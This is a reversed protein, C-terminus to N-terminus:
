EAERRSNMKEFLQDMQRALEDLSLEAKVHYGDIGLKRMERIDDDRSSNTLVIVPTKRTSEKSNLDRLVELGSFKPILVDLLIADFPEAAAKRIAEEGDAAAVVKFGHKKLSEECARRLYRDDEVLLIRKQGKGM